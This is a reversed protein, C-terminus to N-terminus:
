WNGRPAIHSNGRSLRMAPEGARPQTDGPAGSVHLLVSLRCQRHACGFWVLGAPAARLPRGVSVRASAGGEYANSAVGTKRMPTSSPEDIEM